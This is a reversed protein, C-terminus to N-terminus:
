IRPFKYNIISYCIIIKFQVFSIPCILYEPLDKYINEHNATFNSNIM